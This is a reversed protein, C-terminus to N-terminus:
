QISYSIKNTLRIHAHLISRPKTPDQVYRQRGGTDWVIHGWHLINHTFHCEEFISGYRLLCASEERGRFWSPPSTSPSVESETKCARFFFWSVRISEVKNVTIYKMTITCLLPYHLVYSWYWCELNHLDIISGQWAYNMEYLLFQIQIEGM